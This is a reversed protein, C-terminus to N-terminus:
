GPGSASTRRIPVRYDDLNPVWERVTSALYPTLAEASPVVHTDTDYVKIGNRM